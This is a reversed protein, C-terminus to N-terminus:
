CVAVWFGHFEGGSIQGWMYGDQIRILEKATKLSLSTGHKVEHIVNASTGFSKRIRAGDPDIVYRLETTVSGPPAANVHVGQTRVSKNGTEKDIHNQLWAGPNVCHMEIM